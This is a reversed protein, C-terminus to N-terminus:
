HEQRRREVSYDFRQKRRRHPNWLSLVNKARTHERPNRMGEPTEAANGCAPSACVSHCFSLRLGNGAGALRMTASAQTFEARRLLQQGRRTNASPVPRVIRIAPICPVKAETHVNSRM